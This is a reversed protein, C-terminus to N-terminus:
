QLSGPKMLLLEEKEQVAFHTLDLLVALMPSVAFIWSFLYQHTHAASNVAFILQLFRSSIQLFLNSNQRYEIPHVTSGLDSLHHVVCQVVLLTVNPLNVQINIFRLLQHFLNNSKVGHSM